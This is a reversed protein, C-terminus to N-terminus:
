KQEKKESLKIIIYYRCICIVITAYAFSLYIKNLLGTLHVHFILMFKLLIKLSGCERCCKYLIVFECFYPKGIEDNDSICFFNRECNVIETNSASRSGTECTM